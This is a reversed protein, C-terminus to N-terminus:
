SKGRFADLKALITEYAVGGLVLHLPTNSSEVAAIMAKAARVPDGPQAGSYGQITARRAVATEKYAEIAQKPTRLSRGAWDTRFPGPEVILSRSESPNSRKRWRKRCARSRSNRPTTIASAPFASWAAWRPFISWPASKSRGCRLCRSRRHLGTRARGSEIACTHLARPWASLRRALVHPGHRQAERQVGVAHSKDNVLALLRVIARARSSRADRNDRRATAARSVASPCRLRAPRCNRACCTERM